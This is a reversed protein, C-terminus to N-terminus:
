RKSKQKLLKYFEDPTPNFSFVPGVDIPKNGSIRDLSEQMGSTMPVSKGSGKYIENWTQLMGLARVRNNIDNPRSAVDKYISRLAEDAPKLSVGAPTNWIWGTSKDNVAIFKDFAEASAKGMTLALGVQAMDEKPIIGQQIKRYFDLGEPTNKALGYINKFTQSDGITQSNDVNRNLLGKNVDNIEGSNERNSIFNNNMAVASEILPNSVGGISGSNKNPSQNTIWQPLLEEMARQVNPDTILKESAARDTSVYYKASQPASRGVMNEYSRFKKSVPDEPLVRNNKIADLSAGGYREFPAVAADISQKRQENLKNMAEITTGALGAYAQNMAIWRAMENDKTSLTKGSQNESGTTTSSSNSSGSTTSSSKSDSTNFSSRQGTSFSSEQSGFKDGSRSGSSSRVDFEKSVGRRSETGDTRSYSRSDALTRSDSIRNQQSNVIDVLQNLKEQELGKAAAGQKKLIENVADRANVYPVQKELSSRVSSAANIASSAVTPDITTLSQVPYSKGEVTIYMQDPDYPALKGLESSKFKQIDAKTKMREAVDNKDISTLLLNGAAMRESDTLGLENSAQQYAKWQRAKRQSASEFDPAGEGTLIENIRKQVDNRKEPSISGIGIDDKKAPQTSVNQTALSEDKAASAPQNNWWAPFNRDRLMGDEKVYQSEFKPIPNNDSQKLDQTQSFPYQLTRLFKDSVGLDLPNTKYNLVSTNDNLKDLIASKVSARADDIQIPLQAATLQTEAKYDFPSGIGSPDVRIGLDTTNSRDELVPNATGSPDVRDQSDGLLASQAALEAYYKDKNDQRNQYVADALAQDRYNSEGQNAMNQLAAQQAQAQAQAQAELQAQLELQRKTEEDLNTSIYTM